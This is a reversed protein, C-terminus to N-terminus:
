GQGEGGREGRAGAGVARWKLEHLLAAGPLEDVDALVLLDDAGRVHAQAAAWGAQRRLPRLPPAHLAHLLLLFPRLPRLPRLPLHM